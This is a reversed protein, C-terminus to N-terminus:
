IIRIKIGKFLGISIFLFFALSLITTSLLSNEFFSRHVGLGFLWVTIITLIIVILTIIFINRSNLIKYNSTLKLASNKNDKKIM